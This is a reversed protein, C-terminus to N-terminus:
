SVVQFIDWVKKIERRSIFLEKDLDYLMVKYHKYKDKLLGYVHEPVVLASKSIRLFLNPYEKELWNLSGLVLSKGDRHLVWLYGDECYVCRVSHFEDGNKFRVLNNRKKWFYNAYSSFTNERTDHPSDLCQMTPPVYKKGVAILKDCNKLIVKHKLLDECYDISEIREKVVLTSRHVRILETPFKENLRKLSLDILAEGREHFVNVYKSDAKFFYVTHLPIFIIKNNVRSVIYLPRLSENCHVNM